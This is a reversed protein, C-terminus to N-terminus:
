PPEWTLPRGAKLAQAFIDARAAEATRIVHAALHRKGDASASHLTRFKPDQQTQRPHSLSSGQRGFAVPRRRALRHPWKAPPAYMLPLHGPSIAVSRTFGQTHRQRPGFM